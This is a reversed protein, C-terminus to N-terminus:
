SKTSNNVLETMFTAFDHETQPYPFAIPSDGYSKYLEVDEDVDPQWVYYAEFSLTETKADKLYVWAIPKCFEKHAVVEFGKCLQTSRPEKLGYHQIVGELTESDWADLFLQAAKSVMIVNFMSFAVRLKSSSTVHPAICEQKLTHGM